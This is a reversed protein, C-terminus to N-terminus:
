RGNMAIVIGPKFHAHIRNTSHLEEIAKEIGKDDNIAARIAGKQYYYRSVIEDELLEKIEDEFHKLDKDLNPELKAKLAEFEESALATINRM